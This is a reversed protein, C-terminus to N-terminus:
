TNRRNTRWPATGFREMLFDLFTSQRSANAAPRACFYALSPFHGIAALKNAIPDTRGERIAQAVIIDGFRIIGAGNISLRLLLHASDDPTV